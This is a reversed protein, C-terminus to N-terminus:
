ARPSQNMSGTKSDKSPSVAQCGFPIGYLSKRLAGKKRHNMMHWLSKHLAIFPAFLVFAM